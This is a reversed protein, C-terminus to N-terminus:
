CDVTAITGVFVGAKLEDPSAFSVLGNREGVVSVLGGESILLPCSVTVAEITGTTTKSTSPNSASVITKSTTFLLLFHLLIFADWFMDHYRM